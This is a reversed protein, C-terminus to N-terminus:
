RLPRQAIATAASAPKNEKKTDKEGGPNRKYLQVRRLAAPQGNELLLM